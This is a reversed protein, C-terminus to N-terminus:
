YNQQQYNFIAEDRRKGYYVFDVLLCNLGSKLSISFRGYYLVAV